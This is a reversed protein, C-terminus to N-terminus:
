FKVAFLASLIMGIVLLVTLITPGFPDHYGTPIKNYILYLRRHFTFLAYLFILISIPVFALGAATAKSDGGLKGFSLLAAGTTGMLIASNMWSLLTRENAFYTKPEVKMRNSVTKKGIGLFFGSFCSM